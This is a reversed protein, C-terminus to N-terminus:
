PNLSWAGFSGIFVVLTGLVTHNLLAPSFLERYSASQGGGRSADVIWLSSEKLSVYALPAALLAPLGSLMLLLRWGLRDGAWFAILSAYIFGVPFATQVIGVARGREPAYWIESVLTMTVAWQGGIVMGLVLRYAGFDIPGLSIGSLVASLASLFIAGLLATRRGYHDSLSGFFLGGVPQAALPAFGILAAWFPTLGWDKATSLMVFSYLFTNATAPMLSILLIALIHWPRRQTEDEPRPDPSNMSPIICFRNPPKLAWRM